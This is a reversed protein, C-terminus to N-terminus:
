RLSMGPILDYIQLTCMINHSAHLATSAWLDGTVERLVACVFGLFTTVVIIPLNLPGQFASYHCLGFILSTKLTTQFRSWHLLGPAQQRTKPIQFLEKVRSLVSSKAEEKDVFFDRLRGRFFLEELLPAGICAYLGFLTGITPIKILRVIDQEAPPLSDDTNPYMTRLAADLFPELSMIGATTPIWSLVGVAIHKATVVGIPHYPVQSARQLRLAELLYFQAIVSATAVPGTLVGFILCVGTLAKSYTGVHAGFLVHLIDTIGDRIRCIIHALPYTDSTVRYDRLGRLWGIVDICSKPVTRSRYLLKGSDASLYLSRKTQWLNLSLAQGDWTVAQSCM